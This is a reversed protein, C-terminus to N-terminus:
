QQEEEFERCIQYENAQGVDQYYESMQNQCTSNDDCYKCETCNKMKEVGKFVRIYHDIVLQLLRTDGEYGLKNCISNIHTRITTVKLVLRKAIEPKSLGNIVICNYVEKERQTLM